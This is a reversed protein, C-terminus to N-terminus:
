FVCCGLGPHDDPTGGGGDAQRQRGPSPQAATGTITNAALLSHPTLGAPGAFGSWEAPQLRPQARDPAHTNSPTGLGPGGMHGCSGTPEAQMGPKASAARNSHACACLPPGDPSLFASAPPPTRQPWGRRRLTQTDTHTHPPPSAPPCNAPLLYPCLAPQLSWTPFSLPELETLVYIASLSLAVPGPSAGAPHGQNIANGRKVGQPLCLGACREPSLAPRTWSAGSGAAPGHQSEGRGGRGALGGM